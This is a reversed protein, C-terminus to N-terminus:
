NHHKSLYIFLYIFLSITVHNAYTDIPYDVLMKKAHTKRSVLMHLCQVRRFVKFSDQSYAIVLYRLCRATEDLMTTIREELHM